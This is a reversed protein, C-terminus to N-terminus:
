NRGKPTRAVLVAVVETAGHLKLVRAAEDLTAGTTLVDDVLWIRTGQLDEQCLFANRVNKHREKRSSASQPPTARCKMLSKADLPLGTARALHRAIELAQNYGRGALRQAHLPLPVIREGDGTGALGSGNGTAASRGGEAGGGTGSACEAVCRALEQGWLRALGFRAHYKLALVLRDLPFAYDYLAISRDFHPAHKQCAGCREGIPTAELCVPCCPGSLRPLDNACAPCIPAGGSSAGCLLCASPLFVEDLAARLFRFIGNTSKGKEDPRAPIRECM